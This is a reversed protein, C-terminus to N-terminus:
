AAIVAAGILIVGLPVLYAIGALTGVLTCAIGAAALMVKTNM